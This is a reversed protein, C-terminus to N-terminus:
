PKDDGPAAVDQADTEESGAVARRIARDGEEAVRRGVESAMEAGIAAAERGARDALRAGENAVDTAVKEVKERVAVPAKERLVWWGGLVLLAAVSLWLALKLMRQVVALVLLALLLVGVLLALSALM